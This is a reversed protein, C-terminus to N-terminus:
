TTSRTTSCRAASRRSSGRATRSATQRHRALRQLKSPDLGRRRRPLRRRLEYEEQSLNYALPTSLTERSRCASASRAAPPTARTTTTPAPRSAISTSARGRHAPRPFLARHLVAHLRALEQRWGGLLPHVPRPRPLQARHDLRRGSPGATEGGTTYGAGISFEGTSKEVVDVVLIVQDPQSGPATSIEVSRRLFRASRPPAQRAPGAGPQLRRGRQRRVRPPDRYDRTRENGRIEIREVYTRPGQDIAYVVSITRNEFNRDGRPTVQAFAYGMVPSAARDLRHDHGRRGQRQLRQRHQDRDSGGLARPTSAKSRARSRQRRRLHLARRGRGHLQHHIRQDVPRSRGISSISRSIPMATTTISAACRKRTPGCGTRTMSTTACSTPCSRRAAQDLDCRSLRRDSIPTTASSTSQGRDQHPRRRQDRLRRERPERRSGHGADHRHRRRPRDPQLSRPDGRRRCEARGALVVGRPKLQVAGALEADKLKKNGQFLVQNVVSYEDVQVVLTSGSRTSASM